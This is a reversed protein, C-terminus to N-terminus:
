AYLKLKLLDSFTLEDTSNILRHINKYGMESPDKDTLIVPFVPVDYRVLEECTKVMDSIADNDFILYTPPKKLILKEKLKTGLLKGYLPIANRKIAM